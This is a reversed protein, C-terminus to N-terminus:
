AELNDHMVKKAEAHYSDANVQRMRVIKEQEIKERDRLQKLDIQPPRSVRVMSPSKMLHREIKSAEFERIPTRKVKPTHNDLPGGVGKSKMVPKQKIPTPVELKPQSSIVSDLIKPRLKLKSNPSLNENM